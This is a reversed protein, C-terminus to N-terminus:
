WSKHDKTDFLAFLTLVVGAVTTSNIIIEKRINNTSSERYIFYM